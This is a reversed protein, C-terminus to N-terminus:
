RQQKSPPPKSLLGFVSLCCRHTTAYGDAEAIVRREASAQKCRSPLIPPSSMCAGMKHWLTQLNVQFFFIHSAGAVHYRPRLNTDEAQTSQGRKVQGAIAHVCGPVFPPASPNSIGAIKGSKSLQSFPRAHGLVSSRLDSSVSSITLFLYSHVRSTGRGKSPSANPTKVAAVIM